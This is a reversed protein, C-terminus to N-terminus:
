SLNKKEGPFGLRFIAMGQDTLAAYEGTQENFWVRKIGPHLLLAKCVAAPTVDMVELKGFKGVWVSAMAMGKM